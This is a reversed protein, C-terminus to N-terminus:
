DRGEDQRVTRARRDYITRARREAQPYFEDGRYDWVGDQNADSSTGSQVTVIIEFVDSRTSIMNAMRKFRQAIDDYRKEHQERDGGTAFGRDLGRNSLPWPGNFEDAIAIGGKVIGDLLELPSKYYRGDPHATRGDVVLSLLRILARGHRNSRWREPNGAAADGPLLLPDERGTNPDLEARSLLTPPLPGLAELFAQEQPTTWRDRLPNDLIPKPVTVNALGLDEGLLFPPKTRDGNPNLANAIGPIGVLANFFEMTWNTQSTIGRLVRDTEATNINVTGRTRPAPALVIHSICAVQHPMGMNRVRLALFNDTVRVVMPRWAIGPDSSYFIYGDANARYTLGHAPDDGEQGWDWPHLLGLTTNPDTGPALMQETVRRDTIFEFSLHPDFRRTEPAAQRQPHTPDLALIENTVAGTAGRYRLRPIDPPEGEMLRDVFDTAAEIRERMGPIFTGIYVMYTGNELGSDRDWIFLAEPRNQEGLESEYRSIYLVARDSPTRYEDDDPNNSVITRVPWRPFLTTAMFQRIIDPDNANTALTPFIRPVLYFGNFLYAPTILPDSNLECNQPLCYQISSSGGARRPFKILQWPMETRLTMNISTFSNFLYVPTWHHPPTKMDVSWQFLVAHQQETLFATPNEPNRADPPAPWLPVVRAQGVTLIIPDSSAVEMTSSALTQEPLDIGKLVASGGGLVSQVALTTSLDRDYGYIFRHINESARIRRNDATLSSSDNERIFYYRNFPAIAYQPVFGFQPNANGEVIKEFALCPMDIIDGISRFPGKRWQARRLAWDATTRRTERTTSSLEFDRQPLAHGTNRYVDLGAFQHGVRLNRIHTNSSGDSRLWPKLGLAKQALDTPNEWLRAQLNMRLPSGWLCHRYLQETHLNMEPTAFLDSFRTQVIFGRLPHFGGVDVQYGMRGPLQPEEAGPQTQVAGLGGRFLSLSCAWDDYAGSTPTWRNALGFRDGHYMPHKRELSRYFDLGMHDPLWFSYRGPDEPALCVRNRELDATPGQWRIQGQDIVYNSFGPVTYASEVVDDLTRNIVDYERYTVQDVVQKLAPHGAYLTIIVNDGPNWRREVFAIWDPSDTSSLVPASFTNIINTYDNSYGGWPFGDEPRLGVGDPGYSIIRYLDLGSDYAYSLSRDQKIVDEIWRSRYFSVINLNAINFLPLPTAEYSGHGYFRPLGFAVPLMGYFASQIPQSQPFTFYVPQGLRGEDVGESVLPNGHRIYLRRDIGNVYLRIENGRSDMRGNLNNDIMDKDLRGPVYELLPECCPDNPNSCDTSAPDCGPLLVKSGRKDRTVYGGDGDNDIGDREPYNPFVGGRLILRALRKVDTITEMSIVHQEPRYPNLGSLYYAGSNIPLNESPIGERWLQINELQVIRSWAPVNTATSGDNPRHTTYEALVNDSDLDLNFLSDNFVYPASSLGDGDNEIYDRGDNRRFVSGTADQLIGFIPNSSSDSIPPESVYRLGPPLDNSDDSGERIGQAALGMGNTNILPSESSYGEVGGGRFNDRVDFSLLLHGGAAVRTNQPIRWISKFPDAMDPDKEIGLPDPIGIELHWGSIDVEENSINVLELYEHSPEQSFDFFNIALRPPNSSIGQSQLLQWEGSTAAIPPEPRIGNVFEDYAQQFSQRIGPNLRFVICLDVGDNPDPVIVTFTRTDLLRPPLFSRTGDSYYPGNGPNGYLSELVGFLKYWDYAYAYVPDYIPNYNPDSPYNPDPNLNAFDPIPLNCNQAPPNGQIRTIFNILNTWTWEGIPPIDNPDPLSSCYQSFTAFFWPIIYQRVISNWDLGNLTGPTLGLYEEFGRIIDYAWDIRRTDAINRIPLFVWGEPMASGETRAQQTAIFEYEDVAMLFSDLVRSIGGAPDAGFSILRRMTQIDASITDANNNNACYKVAYELVERDNVTMRGYQDTVNVTLYYRGPPLGDTARIRFELIDLSPNYGQPLDSLNAPYELVWATHDGLLLTQDGDPLDNPSVDYACRKSWLSSDDLFRTAQVDFRLMGPYPAPDISLDYYDNEDFDLLDKRTLTNQRAFPLTEAEVRRVPRVMIENIRIADLSATAYEFLRDEDTIQKWWLDPTILRKNDTALGLVDELYEQVDGVPLLEEHPIRERENLPELPPNFTMSSIFGEARLYKRYIEPTRILNEMVLKNRGHVRSRAAIMDSAFQLTQLIPDAPFRAGPYYGTPVMSRTEGLLDGTYAVDIQRLGEAYRKQQFGLNLKDLINVSDERLLLTTALQQPTAYNPDIKLMSHRLGGKGELYFINRSESNTTVLRRLYDWRNIGVDRHKRLEEKRLLLRDSYKGPEGFEEEARLNRLPNVLRLEAPEDIGELRGFNQWYPLWRAFEVMALPTQITGYGGGSVFLRVKDWTPPNPTLRPLRLGDDLLGSGSEDRGSLSLLLADGDDDIGGYGPTLADYRFYTDTIEAGSYADGEAGTRMGWFQKPRVIGMNPMLRIEYEFPTIGENISRDLTTSGDALLSGVHGGATNLNVRSAEDSIHVAYRGVIESVPEGSCTIRLSGRDLFNDIEQLSIPQPTGNAAVFYFSLSNRGNLLVRDINVERYGPKKEGVYVYSRFNNVILDYDNDLMDVDDLTLPVRDEAGMGAFVPVYITDPLRVFLPGLPEGTAPLRYYDREDFIGDGNLDVQSVLNPLPFTLFLRNEPTSGGISVVNDISADNNNDLGDGLFSGNPLLQGRNQYDDWAHLRIAALENPDESRAAPPLGLGFYVFPAAEFLPTYAGGEEQLPDIIGDLDNDIGDGHHNIDRAIPLWLADRLGDGTSDIDAWHNVREQPLGFGNYPDNPIFNENFFAPTVFPFAWPNQKIDEDTWRIFREPYGGESLAQNLADVTLPNPNGAADLYLHNILEIESEPAPILIYHGLNRPIHLWKETRPGRFLPETHWDKKFRAYLMGGRLLGGPPGGLERLRKEIYEINVSVLGGETHYLQAYTKVGQFARAWLKGVFASGNFWSRWGHDLSLADSSVELDRDLVYHAQTLVGDLLQDARARDFMQRAINTEFRVVLFFTIALSLLVLLISLAIILAAGSQNDRQFRVPHIRASSEKSNSMITKQEQRTGIVSGVISDRYCRRLWTTDSHGRRDNRSCYNHIQM